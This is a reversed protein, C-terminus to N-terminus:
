KSMKALESPLPIIENRTTVLSRAPRGTNSERFPSSIYKKEEGVADLGARSDVWGGIWNIGRTGEGSTFCDCCSVSWESGNLASILLEHIQVEVGGCTM